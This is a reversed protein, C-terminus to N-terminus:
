VGSASSLTRMKGYFMLRFGADDCEGPSAPTEILCWGIVGGTIGPEWGSVMGIVGGTIGSEWDPVM